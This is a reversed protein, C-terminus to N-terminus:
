WRWADYIVDVIYGDYEDILYIHNDVLVWRTGEPPYGLGFTRWDNLQYRWFISPLYQGEYYRQGWYSRPVQYYGYGPAFYFGVRLGSYGRFRRDNRWWDASHRRNWDRRWQDSNFRQRFERYDRRDQRTERRDERREHRDERRDERRDQRNERRDERDGNERRLRRQEAAAADRIDQRNRFLPENPNAPAAPAPQAQQRNERREQRNERREQRQERNQQPQAAPPASARSEAAAAARIEAVSRFAPAEQALAPAAAPLVYAAVAAALM